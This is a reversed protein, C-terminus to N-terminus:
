WINGDGVKPRLESRGRISRFDRTAVEITVSNKFNISSASVGTVFQALLPAAGLIGRVYKFIIGAQSRDMAVVQIVATEGAALFPRWDRFLAQFVALQAMTSSKGGRRGCVLWVARAPGSPPVARATCQAYLERSPGKELPLGYLAALFARWPAFSASDKISAGLLHESDLAELITVDHLASM